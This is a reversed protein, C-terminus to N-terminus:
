KLNKRLFSQLSRSVPEPIDHSQQAYGDFMQITKKLTNVFAWCPECDEIHEEIERCLNPDVEKDIYDSIKDMLEQCNM